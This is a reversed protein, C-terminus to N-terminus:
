SQELKVYLSPVRLLTHGLHCLHGLSWGYLLWGRWGATQPNRDGAGGAELNIPGHVANSYILM